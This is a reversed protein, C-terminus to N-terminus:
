NAGGERSEGLAGALESRLASALPRAQTQSLPEKSKMEKHRGQVIMMKRPMSVMCAVIFYRSVKAKNREAEWACIDPNITALKLNFLAMYFAQEKSVRRGALPTM